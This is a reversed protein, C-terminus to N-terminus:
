KGVYWHVVAAVEATTSGYDRGLRQLMYFLRYLDRRDTRGPASPWVEEYAAFFSPSFGGYMEAYALEFERDAYAAAPDILVPQGARDCLVNNRWLDGHILAPRQEVEGLWMELREMLRDLGHRLEPGILAKHAAREVLPRLWCERFSSVWDRRWGGPPAQTSDLVDRARGYGPAPAAGSASRHLQAIQAGIHQNMQRHWGGPRTAIWEQLMFGPTDTTAEGAALVRPVRVSGSRLLWELGRAEATYMGPRSHDHWKLLYVARRTVIRLSTSEYGGKVAEFSRIPLSEGADRLAATVITLLSPPLM